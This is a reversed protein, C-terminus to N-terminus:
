LQSIDVVISKENLYMILWITFDITSFTSVSSWLESETHLKSKEVICKYTTCSGYHLNCNYNESFKKGPLHEDVYNQMREVNCFDFKRNEPSFEWSCSSNSHDM